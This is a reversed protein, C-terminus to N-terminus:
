EWFSYTALLYYDTAEQPIGGNLKNTLPIKLVGLATSTLTMAKSQGGGAQYLVRSISIFYERRVSCSYILNNRLLLSVLQVAKMTNLPVIYVIPTPTGDITKGLKLVQLLLSSQCLIIISISANTGSINLPHGIVKENAKLDM